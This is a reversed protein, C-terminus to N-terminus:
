KIGKLELEFHKEIAKNIDYSYYIDQDFVRCIPTDYVRISDNMCRGSVHIGEHIRIYVIYLYPTWKIKPNINIRVVVDVIRGAVRHDEIYIPKIEFDNDQADCNPHRNLHNLIVKKYQYEFESFKTNNAINTQINSFTCGNFCLLLLVSKRM